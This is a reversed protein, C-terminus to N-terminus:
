KSGSTRSYPCRDGSLAVSYELNAGSVVLSEWGVGHRWRFVASVRTGSPLGQLRWGGVCAAVAEPRVPVNDSVRVEQPAGDEGVDFAVVLPFSLNAKKEFDGLEFQCFDISVAVPAPAASAGASAALLALAPWPTM